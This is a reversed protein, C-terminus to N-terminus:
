AESRMQMLIKIAKINSRWIGIISVYKKEYIFNVMEDYAGSSIIKQKLIEFDIMPYKEASGNTKVGLAKLRIAIDLNYSIIERQEITM